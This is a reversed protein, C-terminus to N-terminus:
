KKPEDRLARRLIKGINSKALEERFEVEKPVKYGALYQQCYAIVDRTTLAPDKRVIFAKVIEGHVESKVGVIAVERVGKMQAIVDEVENPYVNFGSVIIIDKKRDVLYLFGKQDFKAIDGTKLWGDPSLVEETLQPENWYGQMVQPGRVCLEGTEGIPVERGQDDCIKVETSPLPLGISGNFQKLNLPNITVAPSTETLGYAEIIPVGTVEQWRQAVAKQVAMGGGLAFSFHSFDLNRFDANHLLANFLTNVGTMYSFPQRRLANVFGALDRPNTILVNPFGTRLFVLCNATLSFIHYLPLATIIAGKSGKKNVLPTLWSEGQLVNAVMNKHTLVAAKMLGTTGGTYQLYAIDDSKVKVREFAKKHHLSITEKFNYADPINWAPVLKKFHKIAFNIFIGKFGLLDGVGTVVIHQVATEPLIEQLVNAFNELIVVCKAGSDHLIHKLERATYLPNVNVVTMGARLAGFMAVPYQMLNPLVIAVIDGQRLGCTKQLFGAFAQSLHDIKEYSCEVGLNVYCTAPAFKILSEEILDGLSDYQEPNISEPVGPEYSSLWIKEVSDDRRNKRMM